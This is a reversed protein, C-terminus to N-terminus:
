RGDVLWEEGTEQELYLLLSPLSAFSRREGTHTNELSARWPDAENERWLRLLYAQYEYQESQKV